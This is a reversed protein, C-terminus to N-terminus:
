EIKIYEYTNMFSSEVIKEVNNNADLRLYYYGDSNTATFCTKSVPFIEDPGYIVGKSEWTLYLKDDRHEIKVSISESEYLGMYHKYEDVRYDLLSDKENFSQSILRHAKVIESRTGLADPVVNRLLHTSYTNVNNLHFPDKLFYDYIQNSWIDGDSWSSYWDKSKSLETANSTVNDALNKVNEELLPKRSNYINKLVKIISGQEKNLDIDINSLIRFEEDDITLPLSVYIVKSYYMNKKLMEFTLLGKRLIYLVSDNEQSYNVYENITLANSSLEKKVKVLQREFKEQKKNEENWTNIQLAILIGIVVLAIEGIAYRMYKLPKNDDAMKKRIKRFFPIM